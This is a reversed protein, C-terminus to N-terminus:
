ILAQLCGIENSSSCLVNIGVHGGIIQVHVTVFYFTKVLLYPSHSPVNQLCTNSPHPTAHKPVSSQAISSPPRLPPKHCCHCISIVLDLRCDDIINTSNNHTHGAGLWSHQPSNLPEMYVPTQTDPLQVWVSELAKRAIHHRDFECSFLLFKFVCWAFTSFVTFPPGFHTRFGERCLPASIHTWGTAKTLKVSIWIALVNLCDLVRSDDFILIYFQWVLSLVVPSFLINKKTGNSCLLLLM